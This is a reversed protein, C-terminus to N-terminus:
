DMDDYGEAQASETETCEEARAATDCSAGADATCLAQWREAEAHYRNVPYLLHM